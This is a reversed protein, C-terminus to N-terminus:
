GGWTLVGIDCDACVCPLGRGCVAAVRSNPVWFYPPAGGSVLEFMLGGLMYVDAAPSASALRSLVEPALWRTSGVGRELM